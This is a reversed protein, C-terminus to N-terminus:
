SYDELDDFYIKESEMGTGYISFRYFHYDGGIIEKYTSGTGGIICKTDRVKYHEEAHKHGSLFYKVNYDDFMSILKMREETNGMSSPTQLTGDYIPYHSLVFRHPFHKNRELVKEIWQMQDWGTTGNATDIFIFDAPGYAFRFVSPGIYRKFEDWGDNYLDHNGIATFVPVPMVEARRTWKQFEKEDGDDVCDGSHLMLSANVKDAYYALKDFNDSKDRTIHMDSTWLFTFSDSDTEPFILPKAHGSASENFRDTVKDADDLTLYDVYTGPDCGSLGALFAAAGAGGAAARLFERRSGRSRSRPKKM